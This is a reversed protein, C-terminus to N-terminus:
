RWGCFTKTLRRSRVGVMLFGLAAGMFYWDTSVIFLVAQCVERVLSSETVQASMITSVCDVAPQPRHANGLSCDGVDQPM